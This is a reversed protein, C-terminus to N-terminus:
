QIGGLLRLLASHCRRTMEYINGSIGLLMRIEAYDRQELLRLRILDRCRPPLKLMAGLLRDMAQRAVAQEFIGPATEPVEADALAPMRDRDHLFRAIKHRAIGIAIATLEALERKAPYQEMLVVICAQAIDEADDFGARHPVLRRQVYGAIRRRVLALNDQYSSEASDPQRVPLM